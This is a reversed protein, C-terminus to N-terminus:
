NSISRLILRTQGISQPDLRHHSGHKSHQQRVRRARSPLILSMVTMLAAGAVVVVVNCRCEFPLYACACSHVSSHHHFTGTITADNRGSLILGSASVRCDEATQDASQLSPPFSLRARSCSGLPRPIPHSQLSLFNRQSIEVKQPLFPPLDEATM